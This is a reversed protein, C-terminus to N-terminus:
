PGAGDWVALIRIKEMEIEFLRVWGMLTMRLDRALAGWDPWAAVAQGSELHQLHQLHCLMFCALSLCLYRLVGRKSKQGFKGFAFRSRPWFLAWSSAQGSKLTKFLAEIKWRRRGTRRATQPTRQRNSIIFRQERKGGKVCPLWVWYMWFNMDELGALQIRQGQRTIDYLHQGSATLRNARMGVTFKLGLEDLGRLLPISSFGSDALVHIHRARSLVVEPLQQILRLALQQPSPTAKGQWIKFSWPIRLTGCCIYLMVVHLGRVGNLTHMWGDLGAFKGEKAISTTDVIVEVMPPRGRRGCLYAGFTQLAHERMARIVTRLCWSQENLFRSIAAPSKTQSQNFLSIGLAALHCSLVVAMTERHQKRRCAGLM